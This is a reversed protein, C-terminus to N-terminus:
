AMGHKRVLDKLRGTHSLHLLYANLHGALGSGRRCPFSFNEGGPGVLRPDIDWPKTMGLRKPHRAVLAKGVFSGRMVGQVKGALLDRLDKADKGERYELLGQKGAAEMRFAADTMGTSGMTGVIKGTVDRPFRGIPWALNYVVTRQVRFYPLTWEVAAGDRYSARGFGGVAVDVRDKWSGPMGWADFFNSVPVFVPEDLGMAKCFGRILDIDFGLFKRRDKPDRYAVPYFDPYVAVRLRRAERMELDAAMHRLDRSVHMRHSATRSAPPM